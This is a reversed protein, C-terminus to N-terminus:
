FPSVLSEYYVHVDRGLIGLIRPYDIGANNLNCLVLKSRMTRLLLVGDKSVFLPEVLPQRPCNWILKERPIITLVTWSEAVGYEKMIWVALHTESHDCCVCLCNSLVYMMPNCFRNGDHQPLLVEGYTEKELDVSLIVRQNSNVGDKNIIWNLTGNVFKGLWMGPNCPFNSVTTWSNEGFTYIRTVKESFDDKNLVVVLLKYKDNVQDYGFGHHTIIKNDFSAVIPFGNSKLKISPNCLRFNSQSSDYLCLLGNCSGLINYKHRMTITVPEVPTSPNELLPKMPYSLIERDGIKVASTFLQPYSTSSLLHSKAFQPNSILTKWSKSVCKLQLLSRVPLRLLIDFNVEEPLVPAEDGATPPLPQENKVTTESLPQTCVVDNQSHISSLDTTTCEEAKTDDDM